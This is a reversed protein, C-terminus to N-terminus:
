ELPVRRAAAEAEDRTPQGDTGGAARTSLSGCAVGLRLSAELSRGELWAVLFGADFADGAGTTDIADVEIVGARATAGDPGVAFAGDAGCKVAVTRPSRGGGPLALSRAAAEVDEIGALRRCEAANPLLVDAEAAAAAFGLDWEGSPDWNPDLSTTAGAAHAARFLSPVDAALASQLFYSGVHLHRAHALLAPPVDSARVDGITGRATLIARDSGNGLIM